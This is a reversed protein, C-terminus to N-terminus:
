NAGGIRAKAGVYVYRGVPSVPYITNLDPKQNTLNNVGAYVRVSDKLDVAIQLDHTLRRNYYINGPSANDPDGALVELSYRRTRSFYNMGYNVIVSGKLWTLDFSFQTKPAYRSNKDNILDAGPTPIFTLRTLKNGVLSFQLRGFDRQTGLIASDVVYKINFDIGRTRFAAVNEPRLRFDVIGGTSPDRTLQDCFINDLTPQDVCNNAVDQAEATSIADRIRISYADVAVTLNDAFRPRLVAGLTWSRATEEKLTANGTQLGPINVGENPAFTDPDLGLAALLATCNAARYQSGNDLRSSVCPDDIFEFTQSQPSFLEGINPARVSQSLTGRFSLDEIPAWTMGTNWTTTSGVTSYDSLRIAGNVQLLKAFPRDKFVTFRLEGFGEKVDFHGRTPLIVNGFTLGLQDELPTDTHSAERRWEGGLAFEVPGGPLMIQPIDGSIYGNVVHQTLKSKSLSDVMVWDIAAQSAVGEGFLNLPVCGSGAGPTFSLVGSSYDYAQDAFPQFPLAAPDLSSRCTPQGTAPNTVVDLAAFFRDNYRNNLALSKVKTQGYVYSLEYRLHESVDGEVGVVSRITDRKNREGRVGLDFNDRVMLAFDPVSPDEFVAAGIGPIIASRVADPMFPNDPTFAMYYDFTPQDYSLSKSHAFKFEAFVTAADSVDYHAFASAVTRDSRALLDGIYDAVYTSDGGRAFSGGPPIFSGNDYPQGTPRVDPVGDIDIDIGGERSTGFYRIDTLPVFDPVAPDDNPDDPNQVLRAYRGRSLYKRDSASLRGEHTYEIAGSINGRGDAFNMGATLAALVDKPEGGTGAGYQARASFGEFDKKMIFNVVGSVADAGYIASIGGTAVDIREVLDIPISNVDVAASEPLAAVHRRGDVLVLTREIGLNRLNLLNLGTSGIFGAAGTTQTADLSGVLAPVDTLFSTMNVAGSLEISQSSISFTPNPTEFETSKLRTGTVVIEQLVTDGVDTSAGGAQAWAAASLGTALILGISVRLKTNM